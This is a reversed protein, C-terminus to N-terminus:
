PEHLNLTVADVNGPRLTPSVIVISGQEKAIVVAPFTVVWPAVLLREVVDVNCSPVKVEDGAVITTETVLTLPTLV